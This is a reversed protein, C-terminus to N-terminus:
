SLQKIKTMLENFFGAYKHQHTSFHNSKNEHLRHEYQFNPCIYYKKGSLFWCYAFYLSDFTGPNVNGDWVELYKKRNILFNMANCCTDVLSTNAYNAVNEKSLTLGSWKRFDFAPKSWEAQLVTNEDWKQAFIADLTSKDIKNDSDLLLCYEGTANQMAQHKNFYCDLNTTNRFLKIKELVWGQRPDFYEVLKRFSDDTSCDDTISVKSIRPDELVDKFSDITMQYRNFTPIVIELTRNDEM